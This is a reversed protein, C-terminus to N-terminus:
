GSEISYKIMFLIDLILIKYEGTRELIFIKRGKFIKIIRSVWNM